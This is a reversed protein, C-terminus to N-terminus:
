NCLSPPPPEAFVTLMHNLYLPVSIGSDLVDIRTGLFSGNETAAQSKRLDYLAPSRSSIIHLVSLVFIKKSVMAEPAVNGAVGESM